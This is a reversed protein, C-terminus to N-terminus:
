VFLRNPFQPLNKFGFIGASTQVINIEYARFLLTLAHLTFISIHGNRPSIYSSNLVNPPTPQPHLMTQIWILGDRALHNKMFQGLDQLNVIHEFVEIAIILDYHGTPPATNARFPDFSQLDFGADLMALGTPGPNGGSGFDLVRLEKQAGLFFSAIYRGKHYAPMDKVPVNDRGPIPPDARIYDANYIKSVFEEDRWSDMATTFVFGCGPCAHYAIPTGSVPFPKPLIHDVCSKNFDVDGIFSAEVGCCKCPLPSHSM